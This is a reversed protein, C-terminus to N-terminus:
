FQSTYSTFCFDLWWGDASQTNHAYKSSEAIWIQRTLFAKQSLLKEQRNILALCFLDIRKQQHADDVLTTKHM